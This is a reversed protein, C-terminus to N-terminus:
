KSTKATDIITIKAQVSKAEAEIGEKDYINKALIYLVKAASLDGSIYKQDGDKVYKDAKARQTALETIKQDMLYIKQALEKSYSVGKIQDYMEKAMVYYMKASVYDGTSYSLDGNKINEIAKTETTADDKKQDDDKKQTAAQAVAAKDQVVAKKAYLKDLKDMAEKKEDKMDNDIALDKAQKYYSEADKINGLDANKDGLTLFDTVKISNRAIGIKELIYKTGSNDIDHSQGLAIMYKDLAEDYKSSKLKDDADMITETLKCYKDLTDKEPKLKYKNAIDFAAKYEENAKKINGYTTYQIGSSKHANMESISDIKKNRSIGLMVGIVILIIIIPIAVMLIKKLRKKDKPNIFVKDVFTLSITYNEIHELQKSLLMDEVNDALEKPDKSESAADVLEQEDINEWIGRTSLSIIDGNILKIKKSIYPSYLKEQGLYCYLNNRENHKAIKDLPIDEKATLMQTLSQDESKYRIVGDRYLYFRSNGAVGYVVKTYDTIVVTVSAKLRVNNSQSILEDNAQKFFNTIDRRRITPKETFNRIISEVAIKASELELDDDIGDAIVYCAYNDLEVFAFYDKNQLLTGAESIFNTKFDSNLKRM